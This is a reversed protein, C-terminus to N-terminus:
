QITFSMQVTLIIETEGPNIPTTPVSSGEYSKMANDMYIPTPNYGGGESIYFPAGLQVGALDALQQAKETADAVAEARAETYYKSPDDVTFSVGNIRILDGGAKAVADMISGITDVERVKVSVTNTVQYGVITGERETWNRVPYINFWQTQIDKEAVGNARLVAVVSDMAAAAKDMAAQVTDEEVEVGLSVIAMDPIATVDGMGNVWIASRGFNDGLSSAQATPSPDAGASAVVSVVGILVAGIISGVLLGKRVDFRRTIKEKYRKLREGPRKEESAV